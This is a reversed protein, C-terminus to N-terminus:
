LHKQTHRESSILLKELKVIKPEIKACKGPENAHKCLSHRVGSSVDPKYKKHPNIPMKAGIQNTSREAITPKNGPSGAAGDKRGLASKLSRPKTSIGSIRDSEDTDEVTRRSRLPWKHQLVINGDWLFRNDVPARNALFQCSHM